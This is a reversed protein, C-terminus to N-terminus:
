EMLVTSKFGKIAVCKLSEMTALDCGVLSKYPTVEYTPRNPDM